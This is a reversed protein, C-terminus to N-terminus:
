EGGERAIVIGFLDHKFIVYTHGEKKAKVHTIARGTPNKVENYEPTQGAIFPKLEFYSIDTLNLSKEWQKSASLLGRESSKFLIKM